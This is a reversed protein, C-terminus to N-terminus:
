KCQNNLAKSYQIDSVSSFQEETISFDGTNITQSTIQIGDNLTSLIKSSSILISTETSESDSTIKSFLTTIPGTSISTPNESYNPTETSLSTGESIIHDTAKSESIHETNTTGDELTTTIM